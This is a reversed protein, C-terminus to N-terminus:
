GNESGDSRPWERVMLDPPIPQKKDIQKFFFPVSALGCQIRLDRAWHLDMPRRGPGSEGGCIVWDIAPSTAHGRGEIAQLGMLPYLVRDGEDIATLDVPGLFPECSVFRTKAPIDLLLPIRKDAMAQNEATVGLALNPWGSLWGDPLMTQFNEPRKTLILWQLNPTAEILAWLEKRWAAPIEPDFVDAWSACFVRPRTGDREAKRNWARPQKWYADSTKRRPQGRGWEVFKFRKQDREAYCFKCGESVHTCGAWPNFTFGPVMNGKADEYATWEVGSNEGM